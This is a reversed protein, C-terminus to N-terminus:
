SLKDSQIKTILNEEEFEINQYIEGVPIEFNLQRFKVINDSNEFFRFEWHSNVREYIEISIKEQSVLVYYKLSPLTLYYKKKTNRDYIETSDSLIEVIIVPNKITTDKDNKLDEKNCTLMIDPYVYFQDPILELKINESFIQCKKEQQRKYLAFLVSHILLNHKKTGGAMNYVEGYYFDHKERTEKELKLYNEFTYKKTTKKTAEM